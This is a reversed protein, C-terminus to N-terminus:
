LKILKKIRAIENLPEYHYEVIKERDDLLKAIKLELLENIFNIHKTSSKLEIPVYIYFPRGSSAIESCMSVSDGTCIIFKASKLINYYINPGQEEQNEPDYIINGAFHEKILNKTELPTRRSFTIAPPINAQRLFNDILSIFKQNDFNTFNCLRTKGGIVIGVFENIQPFINQLDQSDTIKNRTSNLAGTIQIINDKSTYNDHKPLIIYDFIEDNCIPRMIQIAKISPNKKKLNAAIIACRRGASIVIDPLPGHLPDSNDKDVHIARKLFFNPLKALFNYKINKFEYGLGLGEALAVTQTTNGARNDKLIWANKRM